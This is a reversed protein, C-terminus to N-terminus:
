AEAEEEPEPNQLEAILAEADRRSFRLGGLSKDPHVTVGFIPAGYIGRGQTLEAWQGGPLQAYGLWNPTMNNHGQFLGAPPTGGWEVQNAM